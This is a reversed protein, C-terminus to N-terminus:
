YGQSDSRNGRETGVYTGVSGGSGGGDARVNSNPSTTLQYYTLYAASFRRIM